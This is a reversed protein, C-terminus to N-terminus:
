DTPVLRALMRSCPRDLRFVPCLKQLVFHDHNVLTAASPFHPTLEHRSHRV